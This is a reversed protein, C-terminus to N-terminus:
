DTLKGSPVVPALVARAECLAKQLVPHLRVLAAKKAEADLKSPLLPAHAACAEVIVSLCRPRPVPHRPDSTAIAGVRTSVWRRAVENSRQSRQDREATAYQDDAAEVPPCAMRIGMASAIRMVKRNPGTTLARRRIPRGCVGATRRTTM